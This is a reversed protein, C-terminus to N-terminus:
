VGRSVVFDAMTELVQRADSPPLEALAGRAQRVLKAAAEYRKSRNTPM